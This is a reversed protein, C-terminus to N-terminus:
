NKKDEVRVFIEDLTSETRPGGEVYDGGGSTHTRFSNASLLESYKSYNLRGSQADKLQQDRFNKCNPNNATEKDLLNLAVAHYSVEIKHTAYSM